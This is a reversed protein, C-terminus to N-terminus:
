ATPRKAAKAMEPPNGSCPLQQVALFTPAGVNFTISSPKGSKFIVNSVGLTAMEKGMEEV